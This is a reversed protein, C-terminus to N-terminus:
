RRAGAVGAAAYSAEIGDLFRELTFLAEFRARAASGLRERLAPDRLLTGIADALAATDGPPVLIGTRGDEVLDLTGGHATAVVPRGARMAELTVLGFPEPWTSPVAVVDVRALLAPVDSEFGAVEVRDAIGPAALQERLADVRWGESEPAGGAILFRADPFAPALRAAAAAFVEHGKWRNLRGVFAVVPPSGAPRPVVPRDELGNWVVDIRRRRFGRPSAHDRVAGSIAIVRDACLVPALRFIWAALRPRVVLEHVHWALPAGGPRGIIAGVLLASTNVHIVAPGFAAAEARVWRRARLLRRVYGPLGLPRLYRRRAPALLGRAVPISAEGLRESLWGAPQDDSLLVRVRWGRQALGTALRLLVRDAGYAEDSPHLFLVSRTARGATASATM